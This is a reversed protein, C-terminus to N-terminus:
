DTKFDLLLVSQFQRVSQLHEQDFLTIQAPGSTAAGTTSLTTLELLEALQRVVALKADVDSNQVPDGSTYDPLKQTMVVAVTVDRLVQSRTAVRRIESLPVVDVRMTAVDDLDYYPMYSRAATVAVIGSANIAAVVDDAVQYAEVSM